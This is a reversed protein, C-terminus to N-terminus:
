SFIIWTKLRRKFADLNQWDIEFTYPISLVPIWKRRDSSGPLPDVIRDVILVPETNIVNARWGGYVYDSFEVKILYNDIVFSFSLLIGDTIGKARVEPPHQITEEFSIPCVQMRSISSCTYIDIDDHLLWRMQTKCFPCHTAIEMSVKAKHPILMDLVAKNQRARWTELTDGEEFCTTYATKISYILGCRRCPGGPTTPSHQLQIRMM